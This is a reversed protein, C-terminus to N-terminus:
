EYLYKFEEVQEIFYGNVKLKNYPTNHYLWLYQGLRYKVTM